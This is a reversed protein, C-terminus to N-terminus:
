SIREFLPASLTLLYSVCGQDYVMLDWFHLCFKTPSSPTLSRSFTWCSAEPSPLSGFVWSWHNDFAYKELKTSNLLEFYAFLTKIYNTQQVPYRPLIFTDSRVIIVQPNLFGVPYWELIWFTCHLTYIANLELSVRIRSPVKVWKVAVCM